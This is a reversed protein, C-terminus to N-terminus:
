SHKGLQIAAIGGLPQFLLLCFSEVVRAGGPLPPKTMALGAFFGECHCNQLPPDQGERAKDKLLLHGLLALGSTTTQALLMFVPFIANQEGLRKAACFDLGRKFAPASPTLATM